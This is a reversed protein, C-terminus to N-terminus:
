ESDAFDMYDTLLWTCDYIPEIRHTNQNIMRITSIMFTRGVVAFNFESFKGHKWCHITAKAVEGTIAYYLEGAYNEGGHDKPSDAITNFYAVLPYQAKKGSKTEPTYLIYSQPLSLSSTGSRYEFCIANFDIFFDVPIIQKLMGDELDKVTAFFHNIEDISTRLVAKNNWNYGTWAKSEGIYFCDCIQYPLAAYYLMKEAVIKAMQIQQRKGLNEKVIRGSLLVAIKEAQPRQDSFTSQQPRKGKQLFGDFLGM